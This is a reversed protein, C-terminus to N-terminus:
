FSLENIIGTIIGERIRAFKCVHGCGSVRSMANNLREYLPQPIHSNGSDTLSRIHSVADGNRKIRVIEAM